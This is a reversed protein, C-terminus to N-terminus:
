LHVPQSHQGMQVGDSQMPIDYFGVVGVPPAFEGWVTACVGQKSTLCKYNGAM